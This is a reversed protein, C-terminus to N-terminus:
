SVTAQDCVRVGSILEIEILRHRHLVKTGDTNALPSNLFEETLRMWSEAKRLDSHVMLKEYIRSFVVSWSHRMLTMCFLHLTSYSSISFYSTGLPLILWM